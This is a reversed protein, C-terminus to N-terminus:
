PQGRWFECSTAACSCCRCSARVGRLREAGDGLGHAGADIAFFADDADFFDGDGFDAVAFHEDFDGGAADAAGVDLFDELTVDFRRLNEAVFQGAGDDGDAAADGFEFGPSRTM